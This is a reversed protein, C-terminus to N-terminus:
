SSTMVYSGLLHALHNCVASIGPHHSLSVLDTPTALKPNHSAWVPPCIQVVLYAVLHLESDTSSSISGLRLSHRASPGQAPVCKAYKPFFFALTTKSLYTM